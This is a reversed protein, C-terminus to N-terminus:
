QWRNTLPKPTLPLFVSYKQFWHLKKINNYLFVQNKILLGLLNSRKDSDVLVCISFMRQSTTSTAPVVFWKRAVRDVNQYNGGNAQWWELPSSLWYHITGPIKPDM